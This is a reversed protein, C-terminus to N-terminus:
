IQCIVIEAHRHDLKTDAFKKNSFSAKGVCFQLELKPQTQLLVFTGTSVCQNILVVRLKSIWVKGGYIQANNPRHKGVVTEIM